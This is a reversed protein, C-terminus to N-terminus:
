KVSGKIDNDPYKIEFISNIPINIYRGDPSTISQIDVFIDSYLGGNKNVIKIPKGSDYEVYTNSKDIRDREHLNTYLGIHQLASTGSNEYLLMRLQVVLSM